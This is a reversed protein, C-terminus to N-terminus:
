PRETKGRLTASTHTGLKPGESAQISHFSDERPFEGGAPPRSHACQGPWSVDVTPGLM